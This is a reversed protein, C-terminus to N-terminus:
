RESEKPDHGMPRGARTAPSSSIKDWTGSRNTGVFPTLVVAASARPPLLPCLQREGAAAVFAM